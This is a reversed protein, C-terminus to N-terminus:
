RYGALLRAVRLGSLAEAIAAPTTPLLLTASDAVMEVLVGGSGIVLALGFAPDRKIGVILEAVAGTVQREILLQEILAAAAMRSIPATLAAEDRLDPAVAGAETKHAIAPRAIKAAVPFGIGRAAAAAEAPAALRGEPLVLGHEALLRKSQWEDLLR